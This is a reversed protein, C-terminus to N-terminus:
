SLPYEMLNPGDYNYRTLLVEVARKAVEHSGERDRWEAVHDDEETEVKLTEGSDNCAKMFIKNKKKM